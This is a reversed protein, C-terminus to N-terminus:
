IFECNQNIKAVLAILLNSGVPSKNNKASLFSSAPTGGCFLDISNTYCDSTKESLKRKKFRARFLNFHQSLFRFEEMHLSVHRRLCIDSVKKTQMSNIRMHECAQSSGGTEATAKLFWPALNWDQGRISRVFCCVFRMIGRVLMYYTYYHIM